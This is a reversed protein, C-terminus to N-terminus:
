WEEKESKLWELCEKEKTLDGVTACIFIALEEDTMNRIYDANTKELNAVDKWRKVFDTIEEPTMGTDEYAALRNRLVEHCDEIGNCAM